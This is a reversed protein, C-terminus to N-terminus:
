PTATKRWRRRFLLFCIVAALIAVGAAAGYEVLRSHRVDGGAGSDKAAVPPNGKVGQNASASKPQGIGIAQPPPTADLGFDFNLEGGIEEDVIRRPLKVGGEARFTVEGTALYVLNLDLMSLSNMGQHLALPAELRYKEAAPTKSSSTPALTVQKGNIGLVILKAVRDGGRTEFAEYQRDSMTRSHGPQEIEIDYDVVVRDRSLTVLIQHHEREGDSHAWAPRAIALSLFLLALLGALSLKM